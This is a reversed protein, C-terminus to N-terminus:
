FLGANKLTYIIYVCVKIKSAILRQGDGTHLGHTHTHTQTAGANTDRDMKM